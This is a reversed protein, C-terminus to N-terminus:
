PQRGDPVEGLPPGHLNSEGEGPTPSDDDPRAAIAALADGYNFSEVLQVPGGDKGTLEVPNPVKGYAIELFREPNDRMLDRMIVEARTAIHGGIVLPKGEPGPAPEDALSQALKRLADFSKPRGKRNIRPDGKQFPRGPTSNGATNSGDM